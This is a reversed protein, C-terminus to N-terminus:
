QGESELLRVREIVVEPREKVYYNLRRTAVLAGGSESSVGEISRTVIWISEDNQGTLLVFKTMM